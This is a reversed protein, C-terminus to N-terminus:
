KVTSKREALIENCLQLCENCIYVGPGAILREVMETKKGCFSCSLDKQLPKPIGEPDALTENCLHICENCIYVGSGAILMEVQAQKKSCFSCQLSKRPPKPTETTTTDPKESESKVHEIGQELQQIREKAVAIKENLQPPNLAIFQRYDKVALDTQGRKEYAIGRDYYVGAYQQPNLEIVRTYDPIAWEPHGQHVYALGRNHYAIIFNRDLKIAVTYDQIAQEVQDLNAYTIGRNCYAWAYEPNLTIATNYDAIAQEFQRQNRYVNGRNNYAWTYKPNLTIATTYDAIAQDAHGLDAHAIGRNNYADVNQPNIKIVMSYDAIAQELKRLRAYLLGRNNYALVLGPDLTVAATYEQIAQDLQGRDAYVAGRNNYALALNPKYKLATTYDTIAREPQGLNARAVGRALYADAYGPNCAIATTYEVIAQEFQGQNGFAIGRNYHEQAQTPNPNSPLQDDELQELQRLRQTIDAIAQTQQPPMFVIFRRYDDIAQGFQGLNHYAAGRNGYCLAHQPNLALANTFDVIALDYQQLTNYVIGRNFYVDADNPNFTLAQTYDAIAQETKGLNAQAIGRNKYAIVFGPDSKIAMTYDQIAQEQRGLKGYIVGRNNYALVFEPRYTIALTYDAIAQESKGLNAYALGRNFYVDPYSSNYGIAETYEKIAQEYQGQNAAEIGQKYHTEAKAPDPKFLSSGMKLLLTIGDYLTKAITREEESSANGTIEQLLDLLEQQQNSTNLVRLFLLNPTANESSPLFSKINAFVTKGLMQLMFLRVAIESNKFAVIFFQIIGPQKDAMLPPIKVIASLRTTLDPSELLKIANAVGESIIVSGTVVVEADTEFLYICDPCVASYPTSDMKKALALHAELGGGMQVMIGMPGEVLWKQYKPSNYFQDTPVLFAEGSKVDKNCVDCLGAQMYREFREHKVENSIKVAIKAKPTYVEGIKVAIKAKPKYTVEVTAQHFLEVDYRNPKKGMGLFGKTGGTNLKLGQISWNPGFQERLQSEATALASNEDFAEVTIRRREPASLEKRAIVEVTPSLEHQANAFAQEITEGAASLMKPNGDVLIHEALVQFGPPIQSLSQTRADAVTDAEVELTQTNKVVPVGDSRVEEAIVRFGEPMQAQVQARAQELSDAEIELIQEPAQLSQSPPPPPVPSSPEHKTDDQQSPETQPDSSCAAQSFEDKPNIEFICFIRGSNPRPWTNGRSFLTQSLIDERGHKYFFARVQAVIEMWKATAADPSANAVEPPDWREPEIIEVRAHSESRTKIKEKITEESDMRIINPSFMAFSEDPMTKILFAYIVPIDTPLTEATKHKKGIGGMQKEIASKLRYLCDDNQLKTARGEDTFSAGGCPFAELEVSTFGDQLRTFRYTTTFFISPFQILQGPNVTGLKTEGNKWVLTAGEQWGPKIEKLNSDRWEKWNEITTIFEWVKDPSCNITIQSTIFMSKEKYEFEFESTQRPM